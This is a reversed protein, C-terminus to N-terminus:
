EAMGYKIVGSDMGLVPALDVVSLSPTLSVLEKTGNPLLLFTDESKVGSASPNWAFASGFAIDMGFHERLKAPWFTDLVPFTEGPVGKCTRGAYGTAGGQHHNHWENAPFGHDAYAQQCEAFVDGLTLGPVTAIQVAADVACIRQYANEIGAPLDGVRKFRTLSVVLGERLFCGVVEVYDRVVRAKLGTGMLPEQTPLPHRYKAIREDAAVLAVPVQCSRMMGEAALTAAIENESMGEEIYDLTATMAEGALRGLIRYKALEAETLLARIVALDGHVNKGISGDDSVINKGPSRKAVAGAPSDTFWLYDLSGCDLDFLEEDMCRPKEITDGVYLAPGEAPVFIANSGVDGYTWIYNRRGGTAMAFNDARSLLVGDYGRERLYTQLLAQRITFLEKSTM